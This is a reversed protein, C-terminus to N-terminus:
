DCTPRATAGARPTWQALPRCSPTSCPRPPISDASARPSAVVALSVLDVSPSALGIDFWSWNM